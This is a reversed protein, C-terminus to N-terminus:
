KKIEEKIWELTGDHDVYKSNINSCDMHLQAHDHNAINIMFPQDSNLKHMALLLMARMVEKQDETLKIEKPM